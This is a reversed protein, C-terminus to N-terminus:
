KGTLIIAWDAIACHADLLILTFYFKFSLNARLFNGTSVTTTVSEWQFKLGLLDKLNKRRGEWMTKNGFREKNWLYFGTLFYLLKTVHLKPFYKLPTVNEAQIFCTKSDGCYGCLKLLFATLQLLFRQKNCDWHWYCFEYLIFLIKKGYWILVFTKLNTLCNVCKKIIMRVQIFLQFIVHPVHFFFIEDCSFFLTFLTTKTFFSIVSDFSAM